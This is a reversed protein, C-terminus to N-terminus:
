RLAVPSQLVFVRRRTTSDKFGHFLHVELFFEGRKRFMPPRFNDTFQVALLHFYHLELADERPMLVFAFVFEKQNPTAPHPDLETVSEDLQVLSFEENHRVSILVSGRRVFFRFYDKELGGRRAVGPTSHLRIEGRWFAHPNLRQNRGSAWRIAAAGLCRM